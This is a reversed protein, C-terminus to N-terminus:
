TFNEILQGIVCYLSVCYYLLCLLSQCSLVASVASHTSRYRLLSLLTLAAVVCCQPQQLQASCLHWIVAAIM